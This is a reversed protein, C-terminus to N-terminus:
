KNIKKGDDHHASSSAFKIKLEDRLKVGFPDLCALCFGGQSLLIPAKRFFASSFSIYTDIYTFFRLCFALYPSHVCSFRMESM